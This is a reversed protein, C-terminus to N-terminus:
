AGAIGRLYNKLLEGAPHKPFLANLVPMTTQPIFVAILSLPNADAASLVGLAV